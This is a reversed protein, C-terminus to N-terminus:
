YVNPWLRQGVKKMYEFYPQPALIPSDARARHQAERTGAAGSPEAGFRELDPVKRRSESSQAESSEASHGARSETSHAGGSGVDHAECREVRATSVKGTAEDLLFMREEDDCRKRILLVTGVVAAGVVGM